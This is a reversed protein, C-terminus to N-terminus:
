FNTDAFNEPHNSKHCALGPGGPFHGNFCFSTAKPVVLVHGVIVQVRSIPHLNIGNVPIQMEKLVAIRRNQKHLRNNQLDSPILGPEQLDELFSGQSTAPTITTYPGSARGTVWDAIDFCQLSCKM